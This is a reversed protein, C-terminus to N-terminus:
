HAHGTESPGGYHLEAVLKTSDTDGPTQFLILQKNPGETACTPGETEVHRPFGGGCNVALYFDQLSLDGNQVTTLM